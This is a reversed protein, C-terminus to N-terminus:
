GEADGTGLSGVGREPRQLCALSSYLCFIWVSFVAFWLCSSPLVKKEFDEMAGVANASSWGTLGEIPSIGVPAGAM